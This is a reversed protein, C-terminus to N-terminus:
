FDNARYVGQIKNRDFTRHMMSIIMRSVRRYPAHPPPFLMFIYKHTIKFAYFDNDIGKMTLVFIAMILVGFHTNYM